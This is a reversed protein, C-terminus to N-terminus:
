AGSPDNAAAETPGARGQAQASAALGTARRLLVTADKGDQPYHAVGCAVAVSVDGGAISFPPHLAACLKAAVREVDQPDQFKPLLVAFSDASLSAVVDSARVGVRLRVAIKRRLVNTSESGLRAEASALGEIRLTVLAMPAPERERLAILQNVHEVLQSQNPLGTMLDTAYAKRALRDQAKREIALRLARPLADVADTALPLVDQAGKRVLLTALESGPADTTLVLLAPETVAQSLAPWVLLKRADVTRAAIVVADYHDTALREAAHDLHTSVHLDFPGFPSSPALAPLTTGECTVMLVRLATNM